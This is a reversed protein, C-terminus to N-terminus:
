YNTTINSRPASKLYICGWKRIKFKEFVREAGTEYYAM